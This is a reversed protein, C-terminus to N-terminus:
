AEKDEQNQKYLHVLKYQPGYAKVALARCAENVLINKVDPGLLEVRRVIDFVAAYSLQGRKARDWIEKSLSELLNSKKREYRNLDTEKIELLHEQRRRIRQETAGV